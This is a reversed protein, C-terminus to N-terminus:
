KAVAVYRAGDPTNYRVIYDTRREFIEVVLGNQDLEGLCYAPSTRTQRVRNDPNVRVWQTAGDAFMAKIRYKEM